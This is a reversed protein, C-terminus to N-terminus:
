SVQQQSVLVLLGQPGVLIESLFSVLGFWVVPTVDVGALPPIVKRTQVLIPETPAYALVYPFKDVPLKPYWSMVIRVIFLFGFASFAPGLIGIALKATGPDLDAVLSVNHLFESWIPKESVVISSYISRATTAITTTDAEIQTLSASVVPLSASRNLFPRRSKAPHIAPSFSLFGSAVTTM